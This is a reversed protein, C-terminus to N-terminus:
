STDCHGIGGKVQRPFLLIDVYKDHFTICTLPFFKLLPKGLAGIAKGLEWHFTPLYIEKFTYGVELFFFPMKMITSMNM